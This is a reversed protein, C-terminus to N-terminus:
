SQAGHDPGLHDQITKGETKVLWSEWREKVDGTKRKGRRRSGRAERLDLGEATVRCKRATLAQSQWTKEQTAGRNGHHSEKSYAHAHKAQAYTHTLLCSGVCM